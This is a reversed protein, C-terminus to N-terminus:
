VTLLKDELNSLHRPEKESIFQTLARSTGTHSIRICRSPPFGGQSITYPAFKEAFSMAVSGAAPTHQPLSQEIGPRRGRRRGPM